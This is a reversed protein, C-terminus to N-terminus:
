DGGKGQPKSGRPRRSEIRDIREIVRELRRGVSGLLMVMALGTAEKSPSGLKRTEDKVRKMAREVARDEIPTKKKAKM